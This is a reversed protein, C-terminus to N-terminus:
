VAGTSYPRLKGPYDSYPCAHMASTTEIGLIHSIVKLDSVLQVNESVLAFNLSIIIDDNNEKSKPVGNVQALLLMRKSGTSKYKELFEFEEENEGLIVAAVSCKDISREM